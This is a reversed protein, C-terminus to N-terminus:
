GEKGNCGVPVAGASSEPFVQQFLCVVCFAPRIFLPFPNSGHLYPRNRPLGPCADRALLGFDLAIKTIIFSFEGVQMLAIGTLIVTRLQFGPVIYGIMPPIRLHNFVLGVILSLGFRVLIDYLISLDM